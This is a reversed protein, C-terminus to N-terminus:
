LMDDFHEIKLDYKKPNDMKIFHTEEKTFTDGSQDGSSGSGSRESEDTSIQNEICFNTM